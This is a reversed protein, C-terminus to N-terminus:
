ACHIGIGALSRGMGSASDARIMVEKDDLALANEGPEIYGASRRVVGEGGGCSGGM